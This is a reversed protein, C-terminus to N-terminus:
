NSENLYEALLFRYKEKEFIDNLDPLKMLYFEEISFINDGTYIIGDGDKTLRLVTSIEDPFYKKLTSYMGRDSPQSKM